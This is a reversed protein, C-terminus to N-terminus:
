VIVGNFFPHEPTGTVTVTVTLGVGSTKPGALVVIQLPSDGFILKDGLITPVVKSQITTCDPTVPATSPEPSVIM